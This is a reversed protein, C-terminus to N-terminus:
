FEADRYVQHYAIPAQDCDLRVIRPEREDEAGSTEEADDDANAQLRNSPGFQLPLRHGFGVGIQRRETRAHVGPGRILPHSGAHQPHQWLEVLGHRLHRRQARREDRGDIRAGTRQRAHWVEGLAM